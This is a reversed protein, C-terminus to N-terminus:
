FKSGTCYTTHVTSGYVTPAYSSVKTVIKNPLIFSQCLHNALPRLLLKKVTIQEVNITLYIKYAFIM